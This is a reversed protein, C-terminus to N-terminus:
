SHFFSELKDITNEKFNVRLLTINKDDCYQNKIGDREKIKELGIIGGFHKKQKYHQEGDYEICMNYEPLYFDFKLPNKYRCDDFQYQQIYRIKKGDLWDKINIEGKSSNCINCGKGILHNSPKQQFCGHIPCIISVNTSYNKYEVREYSYKFKHIKNSREIFIDRNLPINKICKPCGQGNLHNNAKQSFIGHTPCIINIKNKANSYHTISYDYRYNHKKQCKIIFEDTTPQYKDGCKVCGQKKNIHDSPKKLFNGHIPCSIIIDYHYGNYISLSYDYKHNHIVSSRDIIDKLTLKKM